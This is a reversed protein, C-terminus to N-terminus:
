SAEGNLMQRLLEAEADQRALKREYTSRGDEKM